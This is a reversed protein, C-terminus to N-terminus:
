GPLSSLSKEGLRSSYTWEQECNDLSGTKNMTECLFGGVRDRDGRVFEVSLGPGGMETCTVSTQPKLAASSHFGGLSVPLQSM